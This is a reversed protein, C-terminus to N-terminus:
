GNRGRKLGDVGQAIRMVSVTIAREVEDSRFIHHARPDLLADIEAKAMAIAIILAGIGRGAFVGAVAMEGLEIQEGAIGQLLDELTTM